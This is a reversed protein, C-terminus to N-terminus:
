NQEESSIEEIIDYGPGWLSGSGGLSGQPYGGLNLSLVIEEGASWNIGNDSCNTLFIYEDIFGNIETPRRSGSYNEEVITGNRLKFRRPKQKSM